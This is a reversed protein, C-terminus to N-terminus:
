DDKENLWRAWVRVPQLDWDLREYLGQAPNGDRVMLEAKPCGQARLFDCAAEVLRRAHGEGQRDPAIGVYYLWGRHGDFGAMASGIIAGADEIVLVTSGAFAIAREFDALPDNWPRTLGCARWLAIVADADDPSAARLIGTM